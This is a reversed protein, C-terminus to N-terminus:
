VGHVEQGSGSAEVLKGRRAPDVRVVSWTLAVSDRLGLGLIADGQGIRQDSPEGAPQANNQDVLIWHKFGQVTNYIELGKGLIEKLQSIDKWIRFSALRKFGSFSPDPKPVPNV